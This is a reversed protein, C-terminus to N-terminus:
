REMGEWGLWTTVDSAPRRPADPASGDAYGLYVYGVIRDDASFGLLRKAEASHVAKGTSWKAALGLTHAALLMNQTACCCAAYDELDHEATAEVGRAQAVVLIVPSRLAKTRAGQAEAEAKPRGERLISAALAEGLAARAEGAVVAMRWPETLHHNPAWRGAEIVQEILARPAPEASFKKASRRGRITALTADGQPRVATDRMM